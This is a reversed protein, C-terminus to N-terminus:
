RTRVISEPRKGEVVLGWRAAFLEALASVGFVKGEICVVIRRADMTQGSRRQATSRPDAGAILAVLLM